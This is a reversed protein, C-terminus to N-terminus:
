RHRPCLLMSVRQLIHMNSLQNNPFMQIPGRNSLSSSQILLLKNCHVWLLRLLRHMLFERLRFLMVMPMLWPFRRRGWFIAPTVMRQLLRIVGPMVPCLPMAKIIRGGKMMSPLMFVRGTWWGYRIGRFPM